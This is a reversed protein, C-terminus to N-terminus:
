TAMDIQSNELIFDTELSVFSITPRVLEESSLTSYDFQPINRFQPLGSCHGRCHGPFPAACRAHSYPLCSLPLPCKLGNGCATGVALKAM